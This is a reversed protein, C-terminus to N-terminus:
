WVWTKYSGLCLVVTHEFVRDPYSVLRLLIHEILYEGVQTHDEYGEFLLALSPFLRRTM